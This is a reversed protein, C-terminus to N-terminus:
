PSVGYRISGTQPGAGSTFLIADPRLENAATVLGQGGEVTATQYGAAELMAIARQASEPGGVVLVREALSAVHASM